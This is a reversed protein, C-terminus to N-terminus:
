TQRQSSLDKIFLSIEDSFNDEGNAWFARMLKIEIKKHWESLKSAHMMEIRCYSTGDPEPHDEVWIWKAEDSIKGIKGWPDVGHKGLEKANSWLDSEIEFHVNTWGSQNRSSCKWTSDTTITMKCQVDEVSALIGEKNGEDDCEIGIIQASQPADFIKEVQWEYKTGAENRQSSQQETGDIYLKM